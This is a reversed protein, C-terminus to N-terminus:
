PSCPCSSACPANLADLDWAGFGLDWPLGLDWSARPLPSPILNPVQSKFKPSPIPIQSKPNSNPVQSKFKPNPAQFKPNSQIRGISGGVMGMKGSGFTTRNGLTKKGSCM